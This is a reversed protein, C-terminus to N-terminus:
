LLRIRLNQLIELSPNKVTHLRADGAWGRVTIPYFIAETDPVSGLVPEFILPGTGQM